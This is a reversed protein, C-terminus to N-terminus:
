QEDRGCLFVRLDCVNTGTAGCNLLLGLRKFFTYSDNCRLAAEASELGNEGLAAFENLAATDFFAGAADTPGDEGDTGGSLFLFDKPFQDRRKLAELFLLLALQTNRGGKGRIEPPALKVTPEGGSIYAFGPLAESPLDNLVRLLEEAVCSVDGECKLAGAGVADFGYREAELVAATVATRNNGIIFNRHSDYESESCSENRDANLRDIKHQLAQCISRLDERELLGFRELVRWADAATTSNEVTAGCAIVDLPDGLVDSLILSVLRKGRCRRRMGGGKILSLEKRVTNLEEINAGAGSLLRTVLAKEELTIEPIPLPALASGGGSILALILDDPRAADILKLMERCGEAGAETPENLGAPRGPHLHIVSLNLLADAPVNVWGFLRGTEALPKLATEVGSAMKGSAKGMGVVIVRGSSSLPFTEENIIVAASGDSGTRFKLFHTVLSDPLVSEVGSKWISFAAERLSATKKNERNTSAM